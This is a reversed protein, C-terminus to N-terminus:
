SLSLEIIVVIGLGAAAPWIRRILVGFIVLPILLTLAGMIHPLQATGTVAMSWVRVAGLAGLALGWWIARNDNLSPM